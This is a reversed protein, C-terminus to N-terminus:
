SIFIFIPVRKNCIGETCLTDPSERNERGPGTEVGQKMM